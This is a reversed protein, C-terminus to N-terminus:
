RLQQWGTQLLTAEAFLRDDVADSPVLEDEHTDLEAETVPTLLNAMSNQADKVSKFEYTLVHRVGKSRTWAEVAIKGAIQATKKIYNLVLKIGSKCASPDFEFLTNGTYRSVNFRIYGKKIAELQDDLHLKRQALYDHQQDDDSGLIVKGVASIYGWLDCDGSEPMGFPAHKLLEGETVKKKLEEAVHGHTSRRQFTRNTQGYWFTRRGYVM